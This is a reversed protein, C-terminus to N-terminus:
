QFYRRLTSWSCGIRKAIEEKSIGEQLLQEVVLRKEQIEEQSFLSPRGLQRGEAKARKLAEKTRQSILQRELEAALSFAFAMVKSHLDSSLRYNEKLTWIECGKELCLKLISMVELLNRGFRSLETAIVIDGKKLKCLMSYLQRDQLPKGSSIVEELYSDIKVRNQKAFKQIEFRQNQVSQHDTSVRIYAYIM